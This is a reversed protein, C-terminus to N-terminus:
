LLKLLNVFGFLALVVLVLFGYGIWLKGGTYHFTFVNYWPRDNEFM